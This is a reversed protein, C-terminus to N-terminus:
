RRWCAHRVAACSSGGICCGLTQHSLVLSAAPAAHTCVMLRCICVFLSVQASAWRHCQSMRCCLCHPWTHQAAQMISCCLMIGDWPMHRTAPELRPGM